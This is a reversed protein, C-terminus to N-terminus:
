GPREIGLLRMRGRLTSEPIGLIAAAGHDGRIVWNTRELVIRIYRREHEELTVMAGSLTAQDAPAAISVFHLHEPEVDGGRSMILAREIINKLERVNGPYSHQQLLELADPTLAPPERAMEAAFLRLFHEVLLPIDEAHDRLAAVRITFRALRFYLDQRFTKAEVSRELDLNTAALVRVDVTLGQQDGVRWVQGDELVRLLKAQLEQPMEGIEDLFLTGEHAMEFFGARDAQAGTFAGRVHGFLLSEALEAPM